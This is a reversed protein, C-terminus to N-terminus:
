RHTFYDIYNIISSSVFLCRRRDGGKAFTAASNERLPLVKLKGNEPPVKLNLTL